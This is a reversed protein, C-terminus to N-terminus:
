WEDDDGVDTEFSVKKIGSARILDLIKIVQGHYVKKDANIFIEREPNKEKEQKLFIPLERLSVERKNFFIKGEKTISVSLYDEKDIVSTAAVPLDVSIGKHVVMSLVGYIFFVLILFFCDILPVMEIRPKKPLVLLHKM